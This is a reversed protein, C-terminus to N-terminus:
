LSSKLSIDSRSKRETYEVVRGVVVTIDDLKGGEFIIGAEAAAVAFPTAKPGRTKASRRQATTAIVFALEQPDDTTDALRVIDHKFLNDWLGDTGAVVLDGPHLTHASVSAVEPADSSELGLQFPCNFRHLQDVTKYLIRFTPPIANQRPHLLEVDENIHDVATGHAKRTLVLVGSDGLNAIHLCSGRLVGVVATCSGQISEQRVADYAVRLAQIPTLTEDNDAIAQESYRMLARSFKAPDVGMTSWAGVGDAVGFANLFTNCFYADEGGKRVKEPHPLLAHGFELSLRPPSGGEGGGATPSGAVADTGFEVVDEGALKKKRCTMTAAAMGRRVTRILRQIPM